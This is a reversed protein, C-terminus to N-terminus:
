FGTFKCGFCLEVETSVAFHNKIRQFDEFLLTEVAILDM